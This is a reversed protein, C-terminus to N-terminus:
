PHHQSANHGGIVDPKVDDAPESPDFCVGIVSKPPFAVSGACCAHCMSNGLRDFYFNEGHLINHGCNAKLWPAPAAIAGFDLRAKGYSSKDFQPTM